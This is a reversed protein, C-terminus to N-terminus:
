VMSVLLADIGLHSTRGVGVGWSEEKGGCGGYKKPLIYFVGPMHPKIAYAQAQIRTGKQVKFPKFWCQVNKM